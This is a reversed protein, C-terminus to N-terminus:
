LDSYWVEYEAGLAISYQRVLLTAEKKSEATTAVYVGSNSKVYISYM